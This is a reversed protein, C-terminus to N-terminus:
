LGRKELVDRREQGGVARRSVLELVQMARPVVMRASCVGGFVAEVLAEEIAEKMRGRM